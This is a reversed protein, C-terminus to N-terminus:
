KGGQFLFFCFLPFVTNHWKFIQFNTPDRQGDGYIM